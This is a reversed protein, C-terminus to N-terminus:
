REKQKAPSVKNPNVDFFGACRKCFDVYGKESYGLRFEVLEKVKLRDHQQFDYYEDSNIEDIIGAVAAYAAYNCLYLKGNRFEQWPVNCLNFHSQLQSVNWDNHDTKYPCLDIWEDYKKIMVRNEGGANKLLNVVEIFKRRNQPLAERYDDVTIKVPYEHFIELFKENPLVTGNTVTELSYIKDKYNDWIYKILDAIYPYLLPEGGSIHFLNIYDVHKFFLDIDRTINEWERTEFKRIYPTFNLCAECNLNCYTSPLFSASSLYVQEKNYAAFISIFESYYYFDKDKLFGYTELFNEVEVKILSNVGIIIGNEESLLDIDELKYIKVGCYIQGQKKMDNDIFGLINFEDKFKVSIINYAIAGEYGAGFIYLNKKRKINEYVEDFEHGKKEWKVIYRRWKFILCM